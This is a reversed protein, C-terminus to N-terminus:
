GGAYEDKNENNFELTFDLLSLMLTWEDDIWCITISPLLEFTNRHRYFAINM